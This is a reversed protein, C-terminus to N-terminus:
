KYKDFPSKPKSNDNQSYGNYTDFPSSQQSNFNDSNDNQSYGNYTDFPSSQQSNFNDSNDNQSYGNYTDFSGSQQSNFHNSNDNQSYGNYTDFPSSQQSNFNDSNDNQSYGNYTDFPGSQQSNFNDSNDNQSYGNYTDFSGSQQSNFHNSNDNQSYGNYTDFPSSQQSNFNDSNDNQSYGNYTDFPNVGYDDYTHNPNPNYIDQGNSFYQPESNYGNYATSTSNMSNADPIVDQASIQPQPNSMRKKWVVSLIIIAVGVILPMGFMMYSLWHSASTSKLRADTPNSPDYYITLTSDKHVSSSVNSIKVNDYNVNNVTYSVYADYHTTTTYRRHKGTGTRSRTTYTRVDTVQANCSEAKSMFANEEIESSIITILSIVGILIFFAGIIISFTTSNRTTRKM